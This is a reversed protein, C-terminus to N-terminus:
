LDTVQLLLSSDTTVTSAFPLIVAISAPEAVSFSAKTEKDTWFEFPCDNVANNKFGQLAAPASKATFPSVTIKRNRYAVHRAYVTVTGNTPKTIRYIDFPQPDSVPNPKATIITGKAIDAFHIGDIPYKVTLEFQGNLVEYVEADIADSLIGIGNNDFQKENKPYLIINM